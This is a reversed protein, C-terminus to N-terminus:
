GGVAEDDLKDVWNTTKRTSNRTYTDSYQSMFRVLSACSISSTCASLDTPTAAHSAM